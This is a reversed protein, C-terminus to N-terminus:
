PADQTVDAAFLYGDGWITKLMTPHRPDKELKKRLRSVQSDVSRDFPNGDRSTLDLLDDRGLVQNPRELFVRLLRYEMTSLAVENGEPDSLRRHGLDLCWGEFHLLGKEDVLGPPMMRARRLVSRVRAVLEDVSFPKVVYDDAGLDLGVIRDSYEAKATLMIVPVHQEAVIYRCLSWGDEGPLMLDLIILDFRTAAMCARAGAADAAATVEFGQRRLYAALPERISRHDDVVLLHSVPVGTPQPGRCFYWVGAAVDPWM